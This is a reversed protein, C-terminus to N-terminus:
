RGAERKELEEIAQRELVMEELSSAVEACQEDTMGGTLGYIARIGGALSGDVLGLAKAKAVAQRFREAVVPSVAMSM